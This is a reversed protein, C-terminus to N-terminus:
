ERDTLSKYFRELRTKFDDEEKILFTAHQKSPEVFQDHMPKVQKTFQNRVGEETRGREEVDRRLRRSYRLDESTDVFVSEDFLSRLKEHTLILIGDVLIFKRPAVSITNSVRKHTKFDYIPVEIRHGNKIESIHQSLLHFDISDPHDFNVSGGDFDFNKSQDIYYNDQSIVVCHDDGILKRLSNAFYTKGSGSGGAIGLILSHNKRNISNGGSNNTM